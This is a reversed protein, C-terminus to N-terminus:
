PAASPAWKLEGFRCPAAQSLPSSYESSVLKTNKAAEFNPACYLCQYSLIEWGKVNACCSSCSVVPRRLAWRDLPIFAEGTMRTLLGLVVRIPPIIESSLDTSPPCAAPARVRKREKERVEGADVGAGHQVRQRARGIGM